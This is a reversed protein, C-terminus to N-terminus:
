NLFVDFTRVVPALHIRALGRLFGSEAVVDAFAPSIRYYAETFLRGASNKLLFVDRFSRLSAVELSFPSGYAATAIFCYSSSDVLPRDTVRGASWVVPDLRGSEATGALVWPIRSSIESETGHADVCTIVYYYKVGGTLGSHTYGTQHSPLQAILTFRLRGAEQAEAGGAGPVTSAYLNYHSAGPHENWSLHVNLFNDPSPEASFDEPPPPPPPLPADPEPDPDDDEEEDDVPDEQEETTFSKQQGNATKDEGAYTWSAEARFDYRTDPELDTIQKSFTGATTMVESETHQGSKGAERWFFRVEVEAVYDM